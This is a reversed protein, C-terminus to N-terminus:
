KLYLVLNRRRLTNSITAIGTDGNFNVSENSEVQGDVQFALDEILESETEPLLITFKNGSQTFKLKRIKTYRDYLGAFTTKWGSIFKDLLDILKRWVSFMETRTVSNSWDYFYQHYHNIICLPIKRNKKFSPSYLFDNISELFKEPSDLMEFKLGLRSLSLMIRDDKIDVAVPIIFASTRFKEFIRRAIMKKIMSPVFSSRFVRHINEQGYIPILNNEIVMKINSYSIDDYPPVFFRPPEGFLEEILLKGRRLNSRVKFNEAQRNSGFEGRFESEVPSHSYGHQLIEILGLKLKTRLFTVLGQNEALSYHLGSQRFEPPICVDNIGKQHSIISLSVKFKKEWSISHVAELMEPSTFFNTDDDRILIPMKGAPGVLPKIKM